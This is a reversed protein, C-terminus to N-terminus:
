RRPSKKDTATGASYWKYAEVQAEYRHNVWTVPHRAISYLKSVTTPRIRDGYSRLLGDLARYSTVLCGRPLGHVDISGSGAFALVPTVPIDSGATHSIAEGAQKALKRTETVYSLRRGDVQVVDGALRVRSRGQPKVCVLFIGGPGIALFTNEANMGLESVDLLKWAPGLRVLRDVARGRALEARRVERDLRRRRAWDLPGSRPPDFMVDHSQDEGPGIAPPGSTGLFGIM